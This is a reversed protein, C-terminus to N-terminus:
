RSLIDLVREYFSHLRMDAIITNHRSKRILLKDGSYFDIADNGDVSIVTPRGRIRGATIELEGDAAFVMAKASLLHAALPTVIVNQAEPEVIPGGASLSYGTAGTPTSIIIGDGCWRSAKQGRVKTTVEIVNHVSKLVVDNLATDEYVPKGKRILQVDLMMRHSETFNGKAAEILTDMDGADLEALFGKDGFNVGIVPVQRGLSKRALHLVTGDGGLAILLDASRSADALPVKKALEHVEPSQEELFLPHVANDVGADKLVKHIRITNKFGNDRYPNPCIVVYKEM